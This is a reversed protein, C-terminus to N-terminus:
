DVATDGLDELALVEARCADLDGDDRFAGLEVKEVGPRGTQLLGDQVEDLQVRETGSRLAQFGAQDGVAVGAIQDHERDCAAVELQDAGVGAHDGRLGLHLGGLSDVLLGRIAKFCTQGGAHVAVAGLNLVLGLLLAEAGQLGVAVGM